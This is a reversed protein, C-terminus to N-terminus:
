GSAQAELYEMALVDRRKPELMGAEWRHVTQRDVGLAEGAETLTWGMRTRWARVKDPTTM